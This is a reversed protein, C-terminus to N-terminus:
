AAAALATVPEIRSFNILLGRKELQKITGAFRVRDGPQLNQPLAGEASDAFLAGRLHLPRPDKESWAAATVQVYVYDNDHKTTGYKSSFIEGTGSITTILGHESKDKRRPAIGAGHTTRYTYKGGQAEVPRERRRPTIGRCSAPSPFGHRHSNGRHIQGPAVM